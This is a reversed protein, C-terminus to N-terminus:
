RQLRILLYVKEKIANEIKRQDNAQLGLKALVIADMVFPRVTKLRIKELEFSKDSITLIGV